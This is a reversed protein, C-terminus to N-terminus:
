QKMYVAQELTKRIGNMEASSRILYARYIPSSDEGFGEPSGGGRNSADYSQRQVESTSGSGEGSTSSISVMPPMGKVFEVDDSATYLLFFIDTEVPIDGVTDSFSKIILDDFDGTVDISIVPSPKLESAEEKKIEDLIWQKGKELGAIAANMRLENDLKMQTTSIMNEIFYMSVAVMAGAVLLVVLVLALSMGKRRFDCISMKKL